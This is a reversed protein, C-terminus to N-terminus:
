NYTKQALTAKNEIDIRNTIYEAFRSSEEIELQISLTFLDDFPAPCGLRAADKDTTTIADAGCANFEDKIRAIETETLRHHDPFTISKVVAGLSELMEYFASPRGIGCFALVKRGRIWSLDLEAGTNVDRFHLPERSCKFIQAGPTLRLIRKTLNEYEIDGFSKANGLFVIGARKLGSAPERLDGMPMVYGSGFPRNADLIVIDLDRHLQWYQLGDDLVIVDPKFQKLALEGSERRDKGVIVPVGPLTSALLVPEDGAIESGVLLSGGDSVVTARRAAGGHGRSLVVVKKGQGILMRCVTQVAPTKGTGGFTLNGISIVPVSLRHRKRLGLSYAALYIALGIRYIISLPWLLGRILWSLSGRDEALIVREIYRDSM